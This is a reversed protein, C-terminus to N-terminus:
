RTMKLMNQIAIQLQQSIDTNILPHYLLFKYWSSFAFNYYRELPLFNCNYWPSRLGRNLLMKQDLAHAWIDYKRAYLQILSPCWRRAFITCWILISWPLCEDIEFLMLSLIMYMWIFHYDWRRTGCLIRYISLKCHILDWSVMKHFNKQTVHSCRSTWFSQLVQVILWWAFCVHAYKLIIITSSFYHESLGLIISSFSVILILRLFTWDNFGLYFPEWIKM